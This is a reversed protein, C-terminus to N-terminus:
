INEGKIPAPVPIPECLHSDHITYQHPRHGKFMENLRAVTDEGNNIHVSMRDMEPCPPRDDLLKSYLEADRLIGLCSLANDLHHIGTDPDYDQGNWWKSLHRRLAAHYISARVGAIRWNYRGYKRAGEAFGNAAAWVLTDPVDGADIKRSGFSDKPNSLKSTETM